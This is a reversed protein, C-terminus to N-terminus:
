ASPNRRTNTERLKLTALFALLLSFTALLAFSSRWGFSRVVDRRDAPRDTSRSEHHTAANAVM